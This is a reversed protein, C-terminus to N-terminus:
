NIKHWRDQRKIENQFAASFARMRAKILMARGETTRTYILEGPGVYKRWARHFVQAFEKRVGLRIPVTHYDNRSIGLFIGPRVVLYRPNEIPSLIEHLSDAFLSSEYFTGGILALSFTGDALPTSQVKLRRHSTQIIGTQCLAENLAIGIQKVAGDVPLHGIFIRLLGTIKPLQYILTATIGITLAYLLTKLNYSSYAVLFTIVGLFASGLYLLLQRLTRSFHYNRISGINQTVVTPVVRANAELILADRWRKALTHLKTYRGQMERNNSSTLTQPNKEHMVHGSFVTHLRNFGSEITSEKESLGVFTEFRDRLSFIDRYGSYSYTDVAVLHWISSIKEPVQKDIRIARGRMQNTLMFSGITSALVLSNIAPADWGEGLLSRTGVLTQIKGQLLLQTFANTLQNLPGSVQIYQNNTGVPKTTVKHRELLQYLTDLLDCPLVSIRGTLLAIRADTNIRNILAEFVPWAGLNVNEPDIGTSLSEDRIYDTLIVQRLEQDRSAYELKHIQLCASIKAPSLSLSRELRRSRELSIERKNLLELSRLQRKLQSVYTKSEETHQWTKSFLIGELLVQWRSRNLDPIDRVELDMLTTLEAPIAQHHAALFSLLSVAFHPEKALEQENITGALWPHSMVHQNFEHSEFLSTCLRQVRDDYERIKEKEKRTVDVAWIFDQHACLTGSKVLEPVSIEEDIPGCLQEYKNWEHDPVDYPPTATLSVLILDELRTCVTDLARWWEARLHHAEDLIMVEIRNAELTKILYEIDSKTLIEDEEFEDSDDPQSDDNLRAHLAQYTISTLIGPSQLDKSVWCPQLKLDVVFDQLRTLWQDRIVLTPSLVLARKGLRRFVELGLTTKGAGPAAVIHLRKDDLHKDIAELVRQQYPRWPYRFKLDSIAM